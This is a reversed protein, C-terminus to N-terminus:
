SNNCAASVSEILELLRRLVEDPSGTGDVRNLKGQNEYHDLLPATEDRYVRLRESVVEEQDDKRVSLSEGCTDCIGAKLPPSFQVQYSAGCGKCTRRGSLREILVSEPVDLLVAQPTDGFMDKLLTDLFVAQAPTRPFGDLVVGNQADQKSFRSRVVDSVVNDPLLQGSEMISRATKGLESDSAVEERLMDGTSVHPFGLRQAIVGAQTGKGAGPPGLFVLRLGM